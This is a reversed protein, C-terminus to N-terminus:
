SPESVWPWTENAVAVSGSPATMRDDVSEPQLAPPGPACLSSSKLALKARGRLEAAKSLALPALSTSMGFAPPMCVKATGVVDIELVASVWYVIIQGSTSHEVNWPRRQAPECDFLRVAQASRM